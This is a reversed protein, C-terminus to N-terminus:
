LTSYKSWRREGVKKIRGENILSILERQVTKESCGVINPVIDKISVSPHVKIFEFITSRRLDKRKHGNGVGLDKKNENLAGVSQNQYFNNKAVGGENLVVEEQNPERIGSGLNTQDSLINKVSINKGGELKGAFERIESIFSEFEKMVVEGNMKSILGSMSAINLMSMLLLSNKEVEALLKRGDAFNTDKLDVSLSMLNLSSNKIKDRLNEEKDMLNSIAFIAAVLRYSKNYINSFDNNKIAIENM